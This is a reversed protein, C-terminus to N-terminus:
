NIFKGADVFGNVIKRAQEDFAVIDDLSPTASWDSRHADLTAESLMPIGLYHVREQLFLEVAAENAANIVATASGCSKCTNCLSNLKILM